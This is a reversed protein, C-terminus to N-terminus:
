YGQGRDVGNRTVSTLGCLRLAENPDSTAHDAGTLTLIDAGIEKAHELVTGGIVVPPPSGTANKVAHVLVRIAEAATGEAASIMALDFRAQRVATSVAEPEAGLMLRVAHGARRMQGTLVMAGLTHYAGASVVILLSAGEPEVTRQLGTLDEIDRLLGQLRAVGITVTAFGIEDECWRDGLRRAVAPIYLDAIDEPSVGSEIMHRITAQAAGAVGDAVADQLEAVLRANIDRSTRRQQYAVFTLAKAALQDVSEGPLSVGGPLETQSVDSM